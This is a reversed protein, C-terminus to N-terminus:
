YNYSLRPINIEFLPSGLTLSKELIAEFYVLTSCCYLEFYNQILEFDGLLFLSLSALILFLYLIYVLNFVHLEIRVVLLYDFILYLQFIYFYINCPILCFETSLRAIM